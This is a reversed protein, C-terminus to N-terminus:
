SKAHPYDNIKISIRRFKEFRIPQYNWELYVYIINNTYCLFFTSNSQLSPITTTCPLVSSVYLLGLLGLKVGGKDRPPHLIYITVYNTDGKNSSPMNTVLIPMLLIINERWFLFWLNTISLFM